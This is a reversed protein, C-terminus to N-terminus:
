YFGGAFRHNRHRESLYRPRSYLSRTGSTPVVKGGEPSSVRGGPKVGMRGSLVPRIM